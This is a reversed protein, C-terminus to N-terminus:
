RSTASIGDSSTVLSRLVGNTEIKTLAESIVPSFERDTILVKAEAHELIFAITAADLRINLANLVAGCLPVGFHAELLPPVNPAMVAVTDGREVGRAALASGLRRCRSYTESWTRREEGHIVALRDPFVEATRRALSLPSLPVHNAENRELDRDYKSKGTM